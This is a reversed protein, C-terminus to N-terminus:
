GFSSVGARRPGTGVWPRSETLLEVAGSSWEVHPTPEDVHLTRPLVGHRMALVMKIVGAVGAAAQAHGINSKLSGLWLPEDRDQGYTALLAEAEIPDGLTTGTGHAEVVDVDSPALGADALAARIVRQQAPGNPATLGNSAGDSNVASGRVVALVRHGNRRADSLRELVLVGVGEAWGTGDASAAFARCRGDRSLARQRGFEVFVGPSAMVTAGGALALDCQGSRLAQAALHLAVLSSSCATDVTLAPGELGLAYAIRGSAVSTHGGTLLHGAVNEGAADLRPGYEQHSAGVFVGTRGGRLAQPDLGAREVAEWSTELLLRQQPDMALAERPSIGFFAADFRDADHLFGGRDVVGAARLADLDWGRSTPLGSIAEGGRAVLDWLDDPTRVGGPLRCAMGVLAIPEDVPRVREEAVPVADGVVLREVREALARPTPHDFLVGAPLRLGTAAGLANRLEVSALSDFGLDRFAADPRVADPSAHGLVAAAHARVLALAARRREAAPADVRIPTDAVSAPAPPVIADLLGSPRPARLVSAFRPWDVDAVVVAPEGSAVVDHLAALAVAPDLPRLGRRTFGEAVGDAMGAGAWPGWAVTTAPLGEAHRRQVLADLAANAAAYGAQGPNGTVGVISSFVVFATLPLDRTLDHLAQAAGSKARDMEAVARPSSAAVTADDVVGAAHFVARLPLDAPVAALLDALAARDAVDCAAVTTRAGRRELDA